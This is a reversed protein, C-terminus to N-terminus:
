RAEETANGTPPALAVAQRNGIEVGSHLRVVHTAAHIEGIHTAQGNLCFPVWCDGQELLYVIEWPLTFQAKWQGDEEGILRM